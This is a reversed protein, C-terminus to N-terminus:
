LRRRPQRRNNRGQGFLTALVGPRPPPLEMVDLQPRRRRIESVVAEMRVAVMSAPITVQPQKLLDRYGAAVRRPWGTHRARFEVPDRLVLELLRERGMGRGIERKRVAAIEDWHVRGTPLLTTRDIIGDADVVVTPGPRLARALLVLTVMAFLAALLIGTWRWGAMRSGAMVVGVGVFVATGLAHLLLQWRPPSFRAPDM